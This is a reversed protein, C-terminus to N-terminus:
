WNEIRWGRRAAVRKLRADPNVVIPQKVKELLPLDTISDSYFTAEEISFNEREAVLLTRQIKGAGYCIPDHYRGTFCGQADIELETCVVHDIGLERALPRAAYTTAGTVIAVFDGADRHRKVTDRASSSVHPLVYDVFWKECTAILSAEQKGRFAQLARTAVAPADIVGLTYQLAWWGVRATDRWTAEGVDRQYRTYLIATDVRVLTRDMDFLAAKRRTMLAAAAYYLAPTCSGM